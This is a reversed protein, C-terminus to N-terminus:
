VEIARVWMAVDLTSSGSATFNYTMGADVTRMYGSNFLHHDDNALTYGENGINFGIGNEYGSGPYLYGVVNAGSSGSDKVTIRSNVIAQIGSPLKWGSDEELDFSGTGTSFSTNIVECEGDLYITERLPRTYNGEGISNGFVAIPQSFYITTNATSTNRLMFSVHTITDAFTKTLELWEWGGGGGHDASGTEGASDGIAIEVGSNSTKVWCGFTVTRGRFREYYHRSSTGFQNTKLYQNVNTTVM